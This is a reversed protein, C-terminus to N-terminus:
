LVASRRREHCITRDERMAGKEEWECPLTGNRREDKKWSMTSGIGKRVANCCDVGSILMKCRGFCIESLGIKLDKMQRFYIKIVNSYLEVEQTGTMLWTMFVSLGMQIIQKEYLFCKFQSRLGWRDLSISAMASCLLGKIIKLMLVVNAM